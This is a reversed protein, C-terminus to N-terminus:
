QQKVEFRGRWLRGESKRESMLLEILALLIGLLLYLQYKEDYNTVDASEFESKELQNIDTRLENMATGGFAVHRFSGMGAEALKKLITGQTQTLIVKGQKNKRYGRLNGHEDRVPIAGGKPTGFALTFIHIRMKELLKKAQEIAGPENDEGDSAIVIARTVVSDEGEKLGGNEFAEEAALLAQKFDTGQTSVSEPTLSEIFMKLASTDTTVPSLLIASGAFAILGIRDGGGLDILRMLERKALSLRSPRVDEALMSRSVDIMLILDVGESKAKKSSKGFQPRAIAVVFLSIVVVELFLKWRRKTHSVSSTLFPYGKAGLSKLLRMKQRRFMYVAISLVIPLLWLLLFAESNAFRFEM